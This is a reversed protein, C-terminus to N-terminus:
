RTVDARSARPVQEETRPRKAVVATGFMGGAGPRNEVIVTQGLSEGVSDALLRSLLDTSGGPVYPVIIRLPREPFNQATSVGALLALVLAGVWRRVTMTLRREPKGESCAALM